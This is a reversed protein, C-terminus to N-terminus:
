WSSLRRLLEAREARERDIDEAFLTQLFGAVRISTTAPANLTLWSSLAMGMANCDAYRDDCLPALAKLCIEDLDVPVRPAMHSPRVPEPGEARALLEQQRDKSPPFLQRGTLLEWLVIAASYMDSRGDVNDGRALEPSLYSVNRHVSGPNPKLVLSTLGFSTLKVEGTCSLLMKPPAVTRRLSQLNPFSHLYELGRCIEKVIYVAIDIPFAVKQTACRNWVQRLDRGEIFDMVLALDGDITGAEFVRIANSHSLKLVTESQELFRLLSETNWPLPLVKIVKLSEDTSGRDIPAALYLVRKEGRAMVRLLIYRGFRRPFGLHKNTTERVPFDAATRALANRLAGAMATADVFRMEPEWAVAQRLVVRIHDAYDLRGIAQDPRRFTSMTLDSGSLCFIATMGLGFVDARATAEQPKDLCEPAAYVVTGLAGTRTGGTTDQASVLDFDTLKANGDDDLLINSPKIDRHVLAVRHAEALAEGIQLILPLRRAAEVRGGLVADRLNGGAVLEMVFYCFADDEGRPDHVRVVGPHKLEGMVRAGRFFRERRQPDSALHQHLVKIAVRLQDARDYAEWVVAFGGRGIPKILLYRGDGLADGACLQGGERLQRRLQLIERDVDDTAIRADRLAQKRARAHELRESLAQAEVSAYAPTPSAVRRAPSDTMAPRAIMSTGDAGRNVIGVDNAEDDARPPVPWATAVLHALFRAANRAATTKWHDREATSAAAGPVKRHPMDSIGRVLVFGVARQAQVEHVAAAVGAGEMEVALLKPWAKQVAAFFTEDPDDIVKDGSAIMGTRARPPREPNDADDWWRTRTATTADAARVLAENCRYTFNGRVTFGGTDVKGYEYATVVSSVAVDGHRQDDRDFGGAVGVFAIYRPDFLAIGQSAALAGFTTTPTGMGVAIRFPAPYHSAAITGLRWACTNPTTARGRLLAPERLCALVAAYEEPLVTLVVVDATVRGLEHVLESGM